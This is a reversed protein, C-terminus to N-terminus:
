ATVKAIAAESREPQEATVKAIAAESREPEEATMMQEKM